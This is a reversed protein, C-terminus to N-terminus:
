PSGINEKNRAVYQKNLFEQMGGLDYCLHMYKNNDETQNTKIANSSKNQVNKNGLVKTAFNAAQRLGVQTTTPFRPSLGVLRWRELPRPSGERGGM